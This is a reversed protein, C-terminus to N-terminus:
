SVELIAKFAEILRDIDSKDHMETVCYLASEGLEPFESKIVKGGHVNFKLLRRHLENISFKSGDVNIVFEKFHPADFLPARVGPIENLRRMAYHSNYLITECLSRLGSPGLLSLYVAAAVACLAENTCINSTAKERRIHQERTQLAMVFGRESGDITTTLGIIRGPMHRILKRDDRCAFIGLSPGGFNMPNGLPQGEGVVIDAGYSGPARLFGLSIPDVGVIYLAGYDHAIEGIAKVNVEVFGLYSPNEVYVAAVDRSMVESLSSIDLFGKESDFGVEVVEIGHPETYTKLVLRREPHIIRPIVIRSRRTVRVAMLAAEALASAWDYMSANAVDMETLECILSQYEFLAQLMGQSIEAQYPTYSTLFESRSVIHRVLSPVYHPWCGAGLFVPMELCNRNEDLIGKIFKFVELESMPGPINLDRNLRVESPIDSYLEDVSEIGLEKLMEGKVKFSSNPLYPHTFGSQGM